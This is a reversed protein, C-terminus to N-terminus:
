EMKWTLCNLCPNLSKSLTAASAALGLFPAQVWADRDGPCDSTGEREVSDVERPNATATVGHTATVSHTHM